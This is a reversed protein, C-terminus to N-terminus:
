APQGTRFVNLMEAHPGMWVRSRSRAERAALMEGRIQHASPVEPLGRISLCSAPYASKLL